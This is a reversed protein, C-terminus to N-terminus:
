DAPPKSEPTDTPKSAPPSKRPMIRRLTTGLADGARGLRHVAMIIVIIAFIYGLEAANPM